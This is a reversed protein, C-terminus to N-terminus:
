NVQPKILFDAENSREAQISWRRMDRLEKRLQEVENADQASVACVALSSVLMVVACKLFNLKMFTEEM